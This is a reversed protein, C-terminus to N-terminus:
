GLGAGVVVYSQTFISTLLLGVRMRTIADMCIFEAFEKSNRVTSPSEGLLPSLLHSLYRSLQYLSCQTFSVIPHLPAGDKHIKPLSCTYVPRADVVAVHNTM